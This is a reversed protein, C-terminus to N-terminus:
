ARRYNQIRTGGIELTEGIPNEYPFYSEVVTSGILCVEAKDDSESQSFWRGDILVESTTREIEPQTGQLQVASSTKGNKGTVM